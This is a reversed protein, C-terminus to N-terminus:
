RGIDDLACIAVAALWPVLKYQESDGGSVPHFGYAAHYRAIYDLIEKWDDEPIMAKAPKIYKREEKELFESIGKDFSLSQNELNQRFDRIADHQFVAAESLMAKAFITVSSRYKM